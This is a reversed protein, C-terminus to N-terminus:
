SEIVGGISVHEGNRGLVVRIGEGAAAVAEALVKERNASRFVHQCVLVKVASEKALTGATAATMFGLASAADASAQPGFVSCILIDAGAALEAVEPTLRSDGIYATAEGSPTVARVAIGPVSHSSKVHRLKWGNKEFALSHDGSLTTIRCLPAEGMKFAQPTGRRLVPGYVDASTEDLLLDLVRGEPRKGGAAEIAATAVFGPLGSAHDPHVHTVVAVELDWPSHATECWRPIFSPGCDLLINSGSDSIICAISRDGVEPYESTGVLHIEVDLEEHESASLKNLAQLWDGLARPRQRPPIVQLEEERARAIFSPSQQALITLLELPAISFEANRRALEPRKLSEVLMETTDIQRQLLDIRDCLEFQDLIERPANIEGDIVVNAVQRTPDVLHQLNGLADFKFDASDAAYGVIHVFSGPRSLRSM